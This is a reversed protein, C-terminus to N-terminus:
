HIEKATLIPKTLITRFTRFNERSTCFQICMVLNGNTKKDFALFKHFKPFELTTIGTDCILLDTMVLVCNNRFLFNYMCRIGLFLVKQHLAGYFFSFRRNLRSFHLNQHWLFHNGQWVFMKRRRKACQPWFTRLEMSILSALNWLLSTFGLLTIKNVHTCIQIEFSQFTCFHWLNAYKLEQGIKAAMNKDDAIGVKM